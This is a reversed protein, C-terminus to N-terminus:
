KLELYLKEDVKIYTFNQAYSFLYITNGSSDKWFWGNKVSDFVVLRSNEYTKSTPKYISEKQLAAAFNFVEPTKTGSCPEFRM